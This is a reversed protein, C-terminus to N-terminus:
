FSPRPSGVSCVKKGIGVALKCTQKLLSATTANGQNVAFVHLGKVATLQLPKLQKKELPLKDTYFMDQM